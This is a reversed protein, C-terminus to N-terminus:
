LPSSAGKGAAWLQLDESWLVWPDMMPLGVVIEDVLRRALGPDVQSNLVDRLLAAALREAGPTPRGWDFDDHRDRDPAGHIEDVSGDDLVHHTGPSQHVTIVVHDKQREGRYIRHAKIKEKTM